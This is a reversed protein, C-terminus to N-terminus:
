LCLQLRTNGVRMSLFFTPALFYCWFVVILLPIILVNIDFLLSLSFALLVVAAALWIDAMNTWGKFLRRRKICKTPKPQNSLLHLRHDMMLHLQTNQFSFVSLQPLVNPDHLPRVQTRVETRHFILPLLHLQSNCLLQRWLLPPTESHGNVVLQLCLSALRYKLHLKSDFQIFTQLVRLSIPSFEASSQM